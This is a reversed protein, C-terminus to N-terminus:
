IRILRVKGNEDTLNFSFGDQWDEVLAQALASRVKAPTETESELLRQYDDLRFRLIGRIEPAGQRGVALCVTFARGDPSDRAIAQQDVKIEEEPHRQVTGGFDIHHITM